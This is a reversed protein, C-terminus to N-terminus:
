KLVRGKEALERVQGVFTIASHRMRRKWKHAPLTLVTWAHRSVRSLGDLFAKHGGGYYSELAPINM